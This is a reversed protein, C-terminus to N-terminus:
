TADGVRELMLDLAAEVSLHRVADRNKHPFRHLVAITRGKFVTALWVTGAPKEATGGGPGAIGTVSVVLDANSRVQAGQAMEIAVQESVAGHQSLTAVSVGLMEMKAENSYTVFGRDFVDSSGAIDTLAAAILGGTCSEATALMLGARRCASLLTEAKEAFESM